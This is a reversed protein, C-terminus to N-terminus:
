RPRGVPITGSLSQQGEPAFLDLFEFLPLKYALQIYINNRETETDFVDNKLYIFEYACELTFDDYFERRFSPRLQISYEDIERFSFEEKDAKNRYFGILFGVRMEESFRHYIDFIIRTLETPGARGSAAYLGHSAFLHSVTKEGRYELIAQGVGGWGSNGEESIVPVVTDPPEDVFGTVVEFDSDVYRVGLDMQLSVTEKLMHSFGAAALISDTESTDYKYNSYGFNLRGTTNELWRRLNYTYGLNGTNSTLDQRDFVDRDWDDRDYSYALDVAAKESLLYNTGAGFHYRKRQDIGQALGTTLFDRDPFHDVIFFGDTRCSFRPTVLYRIRGRYYQNVDDLDSNDLYFFPAVEGSLKVDLRETREILELGPKFSLVYDDVEDDPTFFINDIYDGRVALYPNIQFEDGLTYTSLLMCILIFLSSYGTTKFLAM